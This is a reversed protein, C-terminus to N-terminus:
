MMDTNLMAKLVNAQTDFNAMNQLFNIDSIKKYHDALLSRVENPLFTKTIAVSSELQDNRNKLEQVMTDPKDLAITSNIAQIEAADCLLFLNRSPYFVYYIDTELIRFVEIILSGSKLGSYFESKFDYKCLLGMLKRQIIAHANTYVENPEYQTLKALVDAEVTPYFGSAFRASFSNINKAFPYESSDHSLVEYLKRLSNNIKLAQRQKELRYDNESYSSAELRNIMDANVQIEDFLLMVNRENSKKIKRLLETVTATFQLHFLELKNIDLETNNEFLQHIVQSRVYVKMVIEDAFFAALLHLKSLARTSEILINRRNEDM